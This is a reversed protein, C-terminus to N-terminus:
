RRPGQLTRFFQDLFSAYGTLIEPKRENIAAVIEEFPSVMLLSNRRPKVPLRTNTAYFELVRSFNSGEFGLHLERPRFSGCLEVVPAREREGYGINALVSRRDHHIELPRGFSGSTWCALSNRGRRSQSLFRDPDARVTAPELLPLADLDRATRIEKPDIGLERYYPVTRVAHRVIHRVNKDRSAEIRDRTQYPAKKQGRLHAAVVANGVLRKM